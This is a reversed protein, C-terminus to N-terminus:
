EKLPVVRIWDARWSCAPAGTKRFQTAATDLQAGISRPPPMQVRNKGGSWPLAPQCGATDGIQLRRRARCAAAAQRSWARRIGLGRFLRRGTPAVELVTDLHAPNLGRLKPSECRPKVYFRAIKWNPAHFGVKRGHAQVLLVRALALLVRAQVRLVDASPM